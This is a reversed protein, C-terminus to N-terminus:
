KGADQEGGRQERLKQGRSEVYAVERLLKGNTTPSNYAGHSILYM